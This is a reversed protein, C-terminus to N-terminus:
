AGAFVPLMKTSSRRLPFQHNRCRFFRNGLTSGFAILLGLEVTKQVSSGDSSLNSRASIHPAVMNSWSTHRTINWWHAIFANEGRWRFLTRQDERSGPSTRIPRSKRQDLDHLPSALGIASGNTEFSIGRPGPLGHLLRFIGFARTRFGANLWLLHVM